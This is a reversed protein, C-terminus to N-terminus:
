RMGKLYNIIEMAISDNSRRTVEVGDVVETIIALKRERLKQTEVEITDSAIQYYSTIGHADNLRGYARGEAQIENAPTWTTDNFIVTHAETLNLGEQMVQTTGVLFHINPDSQFQQCMNFRESQSVSGTVLLTEQGLRRAIAEAVPVFQTFILVKKETSDYLDTALDATHNVKDQACIQKCRVLQALISTIDSSEGGFEALSEYVGKLAKQYSVQGAASLECLETIRNVPPLQKNVDKQTRRIMLSRLLRHLEATNRPTNRNYTFNFEYRERSTFIEPAIIHLITYFEGPRNLIPTGSMGIVENYELALAARTRKADPNKLKHCEDLIAVDYKALSLIAVWPFVTKGNDLKMESGGLIDYNVVLFRPKKTLLLHVDGESPTRGELYYGKEGTFREIYNLWNAKLSAPCLIIASKNNKMVYSLAQISKGLGPDDGLIARGNALEIFKAGIRQFPRLSIGALVDPYEVDEQQAVNDLTSVRNLQKLAFDRSTGEWKLIVEPNTRSELELLRYSEYLPIEYVGDPRHLIGPISEVSYDWVKANREVKFYRQQQTIKYTYPKEPVVPAAAFVEGYQRITRGM